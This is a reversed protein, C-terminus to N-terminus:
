DFFMFICWIEYYMVICNVIFSGKFFLCMNYGNDYFVYCILFLEILLLFLLVLLGLVFFMRLLLVVVEWLLKLFFSEFVWYRKFSFDCCLKVWIDMLLIMFVVLFSIVFM